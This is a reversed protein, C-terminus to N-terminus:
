SKLRVLEMEFLLPAYPPIQGRGQPGYAMKSPILIKVKDGENMKGLVSIWGQILPMTKNYRVKFTGPGPGKDSQDFVTGDLFMGKYKIELSDGVQVQTGKGKTGE